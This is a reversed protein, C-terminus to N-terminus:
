SLRFDKINVSEDSQGVVRNDKIYLTKPIDLEGRLFRVGSDTICGYGKRPSELLKWHELKKWVTWPVTELIKRARHFGPGAAEFKRLIDIFENNFKLHWNQPPTYNINRAIRILSVLDSNFQVPQQDSVMSMQDQVFRCVATFTLYEENSPTNAGSRLANIIAATLLGHETRGVSIEKAAQHPRAASLYQYGQGLSRIVNTGAKGLANRLNTIEEGLTASQCADIIAMVSTPPSLRLLDEVISFPIATAPNLDTARLFRSDVTTLYLRNQLAIAHGAFYILLVDDSKLEEFFLALQQELHNKTPNVLQRSSDKDFLGIQTDTLNEWLTIADNKAGNLKGLHEYDDVGVLFAVWRSM